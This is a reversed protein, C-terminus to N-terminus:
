ENYWVAVGENEESNPTTEDYKEWCFDLLRTIVENEQKPYHSVKLLDKYQLLEEWLEKNRIPLGSTKGRFDHKLWYTSWQAIGRYIYQYITHIHLKGHEGGQPLMEKAELDHIPLLIARLIAKNSTIDQERHWRSLLLDDGKWVETSWVGRNSGGKSRDFYVCGLYLDLDM